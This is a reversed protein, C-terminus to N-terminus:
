DGNINFRYHTNMNHGFKDYYMKKYKKQLDGSLKKSNVYINGDSIKLNLKEDKSNILNDKVMEQKMEDMFQSLKHLEKKSKKLSSAAQKMEEKMKETFRPIDINKISETSKKIDEGAKELDKQIKDMDLNLDKENFEIDPIDFEGDNDSSMRIKMNKLGSLKHELDKMNEKLATTDFNINISDLNGMLKPFEKGFLEGFHKMHEGFEKGNFNFTFDENDGHGHHHLENLNDYVLDENEKMEDKSLQNGNKSLSILKGDSFSAEYKDQNEGSRFIFTQEGKKNKQDGSNNDSTAASCSVSLFSLLFLMMATQLLTTKNFNLM